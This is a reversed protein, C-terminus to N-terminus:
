VIATPIEKGAHFTLCCYYWLLKHNEKWPNYLEFVSFCCSTYKCTIFIFQHRWSTRRVEAVFLVRMLFMSSHIDLAFNMENKETPKPPSWLLFFLFLFTLFHFFSFDLAHLHQFDKYCSIRPRPDANVRSPVFAGKWVLFFFVLGLIINIIDNKINPNPPQGSLFSLIFNLAPNKKPNKKTPSLSRAARPGLLVLFDIFMGLISILKTRSNPKPPGEIRFFLFFFCNWSSFYSWNCERHKKKQEKQDQPAGPFKPPELALCFLLLFVLFCVVNIENMFNHKPSRPAFLVFAFVVIHLTVNNMKARDGWVGSIEWHPEGTTELNTNQSHTTKSPAHFGHSTWFFDFFNKIRSWKEQAYLTIQLHYTWYFNM